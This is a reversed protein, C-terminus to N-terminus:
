REPAGDPPAHLPQNSPLFELKYKGSEDFLDLVMRRQTDGHLFYADAVVRAGNQQDECRINSLEIWASDDFVDEFSATAVDDTMATSLDYGKMWQAYFFSQALIYAETIRFFGRSGEHEWSGCVAVFRIQEQYDKHLRPFDISVGALAPAGYLALTLLSIYRSMGSRQRKGSRRRNNDPEMM